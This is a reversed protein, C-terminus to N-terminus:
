EEQQEDSSSPVSTSTDGMYWKQFESWSIQGDHDLDGESMASLTSQQALAAADMGLESKLSPDVAYLIKYVSHLYTEMEDKSIYNSNDIDFLKFAAISKTHLDGGCLVILGIMLERICLEGDGNQDIATYLVDLTDQLDPHPDKIMEEFTADFDEESIIGRDDAKSAFLTLTDKIDRSGLTTIEKVRDLASMSRDEHVQKSEEEKEYWKKFEEFSIKGDREVVDAEKMAREASILALTSADVGGRNLQPVLALMIKFVIELHTKLESIEISGSSDM